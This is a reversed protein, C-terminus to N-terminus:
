LSKWLGFGVLGVFVTSLGILTFDVGYGPDMAAAIGEALIASFFWVVALWGGVILGAKTNESM